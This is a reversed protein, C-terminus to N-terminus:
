RRRKGRKLSRAQAALWRHADPTARWLDGLLDDAIVAEEQSGLGYSAPMPGPWTKKGLLYAPVHRNISLAARMLARAAPGEGECRFAHLARAYGWLATPEDAFQELLLGAEADCGLRLLAALLSYRVGQNDDPNLRLLGRYHDVAEAGRELEDLTQALGFRARMYPRTEIRAWFPGAEETFAAAGLAREGAAVGDAYFALAETPGPAAEALLVYADACDPSLEIARRALQVRRRGRAEVGRYVM